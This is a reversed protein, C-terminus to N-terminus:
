KKDEYYLLNVPHGCKKCVPKKGAVYRMPHNRRVIYFCNDCKYTYTKM